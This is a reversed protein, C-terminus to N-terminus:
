DLGRGLIVVIDKDAPPYAYLRDPLNSNRRVDIEGGTSPKLMPVTSTPGRM